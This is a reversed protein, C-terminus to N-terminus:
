YLIAKHPKGALTVDPIAGAVYTIVDDVRNFDVGEFQVQRDLSLTLIGHKPTGPLTFTDNVGDIDGTVDGVVINPLDDVMKKTMALIMKYTKGGVNKASASTGEQARTVTLNDTSRATCRVIEVDPDDAPDPYDTVNWWVLNFSGATAPDPLKAGHGSTLDISTDNDDYGTSVTVKGFNIVPDLAAM